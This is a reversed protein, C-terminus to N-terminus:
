LVHQGKAYAVSASNGVLASQGDGGDMNPAALHALVLLQGVGDDFRLSATGTGGFIRVGHDRCERALRELRRGLREVLEPGLDAKECEEYNILM